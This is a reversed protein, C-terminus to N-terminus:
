LVLRNSPLRDVGIDEGSPIDLVSDVELSAGGEGGDAYFVYDLTQVHEGDERIKWTTYPVEAGDESAYASKFKIGADGGDTMTAYVPETPEANFDGSIITPRAPNDAQQDALFAQLDKGQENRLTSLLAGSRAKLHTTAVLVEEGSAKSRLVASLVM